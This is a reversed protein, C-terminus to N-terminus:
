PKLISATDPHSDTGARGASGPRTAPCFLSPAPALSRSRSASSRSRIASPSCSRSLPFRSRLVPALPFGPAPSRLSRPVPVPALPFRPAPSLRLTSPQLDAHPAPTRLLEHNATANKRWGDVHHTVGDCKHTVRRMKADGHAMSRDRRSGSHSRSPHCAGTREVTGVRFAAFLVSRHRGRASPAGPRLNSVAQAPFPEMTNQM